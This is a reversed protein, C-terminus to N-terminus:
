YQWPWFMNDVRISLESFTVVECCVTETNKLGFVLNKLHYRIGQNFNIQSSYNEYFWSLINVKDM